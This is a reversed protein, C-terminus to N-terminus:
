PVPDLRWAAYGNVGNDAHIPAYNALFESRPLAKVRGDLFLVNGVSEHPWEGRGDTAMFLGAETLLCVESARTAVQDLPRTVFANHDGLKGFRGGNALTQYMEGSQLLWNAVVTYGIEGASVAAPTGYAMTQEAADEYLGEPCYFVGASGKAYSNMVSGCVRGLCGSFDPGGGATRRWDLSITALGDPGWQPLRNHHDDAYQRLAMGLQRLNSRCTAAEARRHVGAYVPFVIGALIAIIAIVVLLEILTFGRQHPRM